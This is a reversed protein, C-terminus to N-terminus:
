LHGWKEGKGMKVWSGVGRGEVSWWVMTQRQLNCMHPRDPVLGAMTLITLITQVVDIYSAALSLSSSHAHMFLSSKATSTLPPLLHRQTLMHVRHGDREFHSLWCLLLGADFTANLTFMGKHCSNLHSLLSNSHAVPSQCSWWSLTGAWADCRM